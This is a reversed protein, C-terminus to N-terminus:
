SKITIRKHYIVIQMQTVKYSSTFTSPKYYMKIQIRYIWKTYQVAYITNDHILQLGYTVISRTNNPKNNAVSKLVVEIPAILKACGLQLEIYFHYQYYSKFM